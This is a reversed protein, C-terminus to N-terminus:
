ERCLTAQLSSKRRKSKMEVRMLMRKARLSRLLQSAMRIM